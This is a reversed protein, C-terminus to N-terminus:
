ESTMRTFGKRHAYRILEGVSHLDLKAMIHRRHAQVTFPSVDLRTAIEKNSLGEGLLPMLERERDSLIRDFNFPDKLHRQKFEILVPSYYTGGDLIAATAERLNKIDEGTKDVFGHLKMQHVCSLTFDDTRSSLALIRCPLHEAIITEAVELGSMGPLVIDLVVLKPRHERLLALGTTGDEAQGVIDLGVERVLTAAVLQRVLLHDEIVVATVPANM